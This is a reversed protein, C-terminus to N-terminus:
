CVFRECVFKGRRQDMDSCRQQIKPPVPLDSASLTNLTHVFGLNKQTLTM